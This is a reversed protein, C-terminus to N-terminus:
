YSRNVWLDLFIFFNNALRVTRINKKKCRELCWVLGRNGSGPFLNSNNRKRAPKQNRNVM